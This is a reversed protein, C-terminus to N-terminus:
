IVQGVAMQLSTNGWRSVSTALRFFPKAGEYARVGNKEMCNQMLLSWPSSLHSSLPIRYALRFHLHVWSVEFYVTSQLPLPIPWWRIILPINHVALINETVSIVAEHILYREFWRTPKKNSSDPVLAGISLVCCILTVTLRSWIMWSPIRRRRLAGKGCVHIDTCNNLIVISSIM